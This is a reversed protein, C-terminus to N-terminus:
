IKPYWINIYMLSNRDFIYIYVVDYTIILDNNFVMEIPPFNKHVNISKYFSSIDLFYVNFNFGSKFFIRRNIIDVQFNELNKDIIFYDIIM